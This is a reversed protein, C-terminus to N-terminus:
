RGKQKLIEDLNFRIKEEDIRITSDEFVHDWPIRDKEKYILM